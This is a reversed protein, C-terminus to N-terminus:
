QFHEQINSSSITFNASHKKLGVYYDVVHEHEEHKEPVHIQEHQEIEGGQYGHFEPYHDTNQAANDEQHSQYVIRALSKSPLTVLMLFLSVQFVFIFVILNNFYFM